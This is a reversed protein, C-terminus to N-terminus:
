SASSQDEESDEVFLHGLRPFMRYIREDLWRGVRPFTQGWRLLVGVAITPVLVVCFVVTFVTSV